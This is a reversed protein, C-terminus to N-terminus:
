PTVRRPLVLPLMQLSDIGGDFVAGFVRAARERDRQAEANHVTEHDRPALPGRRTRLQDMRPERPPSACAVVCGVRKTDLLVGVNAREEELMADKVGVGGRDEGHHTM